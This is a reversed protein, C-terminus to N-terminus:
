LKHTDNNPIIMLKDKMIKDRKIGSQSMVSEGLTCKSDIICLLVNDTLRVSLIETVAVSETRSKLFYVWQDQTLKLSNKQSPPPASVGQRVFFINDGGGKLFIKKKKYAFIFLPPPSTSSVGM